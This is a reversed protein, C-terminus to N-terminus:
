RFFLLWVALGLALAIFVPYCVWKAIKLKKEDLPRYGGPTLEGGCHPCKEMHDLVEQGCHPCNTVHRMM